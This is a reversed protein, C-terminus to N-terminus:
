GATRAVMEVRVEFGEDLATRVIVQGDLAEDLALRQKLTRLGSGASRELADLQADLADDAVSLELRNARRRATVRVTGGGLRPAIGHRIANEVLPQLTFSPVECEAVTPDLEMEVRLRDGFRMQEIALYDRM